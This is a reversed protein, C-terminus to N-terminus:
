SRSGKRANALSALQNSMNAPNNSKAESYDQRAQKVRSWGTAGDAGAAKYALRANNAASGAAKAGGRLALAVSPNGTAFTLASGLAAGGMSKLPNGSDISAGSLLGASARPITMSLGLLMIGQIILSMMDIVTINKITKTAGLGEAMHKFQIIEFGITLILTLVFLKIGVSLIYKMVGIAYDKFIKSGGLGILILGANACIHFECVYIIYILCIITFIIVIFILVIEYFFVMGLDRWGADKMIPATAEMLKFMLAIPSGVNFPEGGGGSLTHTLKELGTLAVIKAWEEYNMIVAAIFGMFLLTMIFQGAIEHLQSKQIAMRMGFLCVEIIATLRFLNLAEKQMVTWWGSTRAVFQDLISTGINTQAEAIGTLALALFLSVVVIPMLSPKERM